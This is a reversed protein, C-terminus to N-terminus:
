LDAHSMENNLPPPSIGEHKTRWGKDAGPTIYKIERTTAGLPTSGSVLTRRGPIVSPSPRTLSLGVM